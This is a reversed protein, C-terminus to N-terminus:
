VYGKVCLRTVVRECVCGKVCFKKVYYLQKLCLVKVCLSGCVCVCLETVCLEKVCDTKWCRRKEQMKWGMNVDTEHKNSTTLM